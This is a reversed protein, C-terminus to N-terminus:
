ISYSNLADVYSPDAANMAFATMIGGAFMAPVAFISHIALLAMGSLGHGSTCGSAMRSGLLMVFGGFFADAAPVGKVVGYTGSITSAILSAIIATVIYIVQWWNGPGTRFGNLHPFAKKTSEPAITLIQSILTMYASTSGLTDGLALVAPVQQFGIIVGSLIPPWAQTWPTFGMPIESRWPFFYEFLFIPVAMMLALGVGLAWYPVKSFMKIDEIQVPKCMGASLHPAIYPQLLGYVLSAVVGGLLTIGSNGVGSGVQILVMGPCAGALAMGAGLLAAGLSVGIIGKGCGCGMFEKRAKNFQAPYLVSVIALFFAGGGSASLFM